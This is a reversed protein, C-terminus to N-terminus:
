HQWTGDLQMMWPDIDHNIPAHPHSSSVATPPVEIACRVAMHGAHRVLATIPHVPRSSLRVTDRETARGGARMMESAATVFPM